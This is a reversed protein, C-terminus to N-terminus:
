THIRLRLTKMYPAGLTCLILCVVIHLQRALQSQPRLTYPVVFLSMCDTHPLRLQLCATQAPWTPPHCLLLTSPPAPYCPLYHSSKTQQQQQRQQKARQIAAQQIKYLRKLISILARVLQWPLCCGSCPPPSLPTAIMYCVRRLCTARLLLLRLLRRLQLAVSFLMFTKNSNGHLAQSLRRWDSSGLWNYRSGESQEGREGEWENNNNHKNNYSPKRM